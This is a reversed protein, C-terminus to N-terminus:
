LNIISDAANGRTFVWVDSSADLYFDFHSDKLLFVAGIFLSTYAQDTTFVIPLVQSRTLHIHRRIRHHVLLAFPGCTLTKHDHSFTPFDFILDHQQPV